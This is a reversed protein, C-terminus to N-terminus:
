MGMRVCRTTAHLNTIYELPAAVGHLESRTSSAQNVPGDVPGAGTVLLQGKADTLM